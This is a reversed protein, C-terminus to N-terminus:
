KNEPSNTNESDSDFMSKLRDEPSLRRPSRKPFNPVNNQGTGTKLDDDKKPPFTESPEPVTESPELPMMTSIRTTPDLSRKKM